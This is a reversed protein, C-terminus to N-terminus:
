FPTTPPCRTIHKTLEYLRSIDKDNADLLQKIRKIGSLITAHTRDCLRGIKSSGFGNKQLVFWYLERIDCVNQTGRKGLIDMEPICVIKSFETIM